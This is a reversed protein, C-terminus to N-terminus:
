EEVEDGELEECTVQGRLEFPTVGLAKAADATSLYGAERHMADIAAAGSEGEYVGLDVGGQESWIKFKAM